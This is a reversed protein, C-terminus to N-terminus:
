ELERALQAFKDLHIERPTFTTLATDISNYSPPSGSSIADDEQALPPACSRRISCGAARSWAGSRKPIASTIWLEAELLVIDALMGSVLKGLHGDAGVAAAAEATAVRLAELPKLGAEVLHELEWHLSQGFFTGTMLSDTGAHLKVGARHAAQLQALRGPWAAAM